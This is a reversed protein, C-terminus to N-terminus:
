LGPYHSRSEAAVDSWRGKVEANSARADLLAQKDKLWREPLHSLIGPADRLIVDVVSEGLPRPPRTDDRRALMATVAQNGAGRQLALVHAPTAVRALPAAPPREAAPSPRREPETRERM